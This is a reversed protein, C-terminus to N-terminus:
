GFRLNCPQCVVLLPNGTKHCHHLTKFNGVKDGKCSFRVDCNQCRDKILYQNYQENYDDCKIGTRKWNSITYYRKGEPTHNYKKMRDLIRDRNQYYYSLSKEQLKQKNREYYQQRTTLEM